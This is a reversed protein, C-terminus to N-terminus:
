DQERQARHLEAISAKGLRLYITELREHIRKRHEGAAHPLISEFDTLAAEWAHMKMLITGRTDRYRPDGPQRSIALNTLELARALDPKEADGLLWALNNAVDMLAPDLEFARETHWLAASYDGDLWRITGLSFHAFPLAKGEVVQQELQRRLDSREADDTASQYLSNMRLYAVRNSPDYQLARGLLQFMQAFSSESNGNVGAMRHLCLDSLVRRLGIMAPSNTALKRTEILTLGADILREAEDIRDGAIYINALDIRTKYDRPRTLLVKKLYEEAERLCRLRLRAEGMQGCWNATRLWRSPDIEAAEIQKAAAQPQQGSAMFYTTWLDCLEVPQESGSRVLHKRMLEWQSEDAGSTTSVDQVQRPKLDIAMRIAMTRHAPAFGTAHDPALRRFLTEATRVDGLKWVLKAWNFLDEPECQAGGDILRGYCLRALELDSMEVAGRAATRYRSVTKDQIWQARGVLTGVFILVVIAPISLPDIRM